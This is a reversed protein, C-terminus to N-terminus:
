TVRRQNSLVQDMPRVEIVGVGIGTAARGFLQRRTVRQVNELLESHMM